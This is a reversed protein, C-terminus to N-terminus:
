GRKGKSFDHERHIRDIELDFLGESEVDSVISLRVAINLTICTRGNTPKGNVYLREDYCFNGGICLSERMKTGNIM